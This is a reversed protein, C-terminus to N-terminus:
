VPSSTADSSHGISLEEQMLPHPYFPRAIQTAGISCPRVSWLFTGTSGSSFATLWLRHAVKDCPRSTRPSNPHPKHKSAPGPDLVQEGSHDPLAQHKM